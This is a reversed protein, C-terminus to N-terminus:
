RERGQANVLAPIVHLGASIMIMRALHRANQMLGLLRIPGIFRERLPCHLFSVEWAARRPPSASRPARREPMATIRVCMGCADNFNCLGRNM